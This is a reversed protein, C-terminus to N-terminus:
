KTYYMDEFLTKLSIWFLQECYDNALKEALYKMDVDDLNDIIELAKKDDKFLGRLDDKHLRTIVFGEEM